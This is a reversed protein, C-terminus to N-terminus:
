QPVSISPLAVPAILVIANRPCRAFTVPRPPRPACRFYIPRRIKWLILCKLIEDVGKSLKSILDANSRVVFASKFFNGYVHIPASNRCMSGSLQPMPGPDALQTRINIDSMLGKIHKFTSKVTGHSLYHFPRPCCPVKHLREYQAHPGRANQSPQRSCFFRSLCLRRRISLGGCCCALRVTGGSAQLPGLALLTWVPM